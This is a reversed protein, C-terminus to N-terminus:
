FVIRQNGFDVDIDPTHVEQVVQLGVVLELNHEQKVIRGDDVMERLNDLYGILATCLIFREHWTVQSETAVAALNDHSQCGVHCTHKGVVRTHQYLFHRSNGTGM